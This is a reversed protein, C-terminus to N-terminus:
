LFLINAIGWGVSFLNAKILVGFGVARLVDRVSPCAYLTVAWPVLVLGFLMSVFGWHEYKFRRMGKLPWPALGLCLGAAVVIALGLWQSGTMLAGEASALAQYSPM